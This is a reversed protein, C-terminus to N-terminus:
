LQVCRLVSPLRHLTWVRGNALLLAGGTRSSLHALLLSLLQIITIVGPYTEYSPVTHQRVQIGREM